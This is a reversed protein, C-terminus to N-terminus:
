PARLGLLVRFPPTTNLRPVEARDTPANLVDVM